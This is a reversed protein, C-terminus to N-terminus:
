LHRPPLAFGHEEQPAETHLTLRRGDWDCPSLASKPLVAAETEAGLCGCACRLPPHCTIHLLIKIIILDEIPRGSVGDFAVFGALHEEIKPSSFVTFVTLRQEHRGDSFVRIVPATAVVVVVEDAFAPKTQRAEEQLLCLSVLMCAELDSTVLRAAIFPMRSPKAFAM